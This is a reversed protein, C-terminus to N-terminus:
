SALDVSSSEVPPESWRLALWLHLGLPELEQELVSSAVASKWSYLPYIFGVRSESIIQVCEVKGALDQRKDISISVNILDSKVTRSVRCWQCAADPAVRILVSSPIDRQGLNNGHTHANRLTNYIYHTLVDLKVLCDANSIVSVWIRIRHLYLSETSNRKM